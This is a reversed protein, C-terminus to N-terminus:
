FILDTLNERLNKISSSLLKENKALCLKQLPRMYRLGVKNSPRGPVTISARKKFQMTSVVLM